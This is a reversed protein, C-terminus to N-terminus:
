ALVGPSAAPHLKFGSVYGSREMAKLCGCDHVLCKDRYVSHDDVAHGCGKCKKKKVLM